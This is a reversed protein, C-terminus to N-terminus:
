AYGKVGETALKMVADPPDIKPARPDLLWTRAKHTPSVEFYPPRKVFDIKLAKPNRPAFADGKVEYFLNPPTGHISYLPEGKVGLQPLSSLLAWTYPHKSKYFVEECLGIEVIDGAYMVAIRDAVNAVVGLDHTIYVTTLNYKAKLNRILGLIQAQITVDLATTPEDCILIQPRCAVAIAIVVRQRMGGSFEHPYQKARREPNNIGVDELVSIMERHAAEGHLGQHLEIAEVIQAGITKLPNLSTMPDQLVMAIQKGRVSLWDKETKFKTLDKGGYVIEGSDVWGNADLLGMFSKVFVSKGSGSEGVIALSEGRYLDLSVGRIAHLQRGRLNFKINLDKVSLITERENAM